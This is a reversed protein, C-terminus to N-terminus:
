YKSNINSRIETSNVRTPNNIAENINVNNIFNIIETSNGKAHNKLVENSNVTAAHFIFLALILNVIDELHTCLRILNSYHQINFQFFCTNRNCAHFLKRREDGKDKIQRSLNLLFM